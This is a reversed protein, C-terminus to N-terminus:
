CQGESDYSRSGFGRSDLVESGGFTVHLRHSVLSGIKGIAGLGFYLGFMRSLGFM